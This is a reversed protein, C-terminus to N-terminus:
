LLNRYDYRPAVSYDIVLCPTGDSALQSSFSLDIYGSDVNWGLEDGLKVSDLGIEYYFDNLSVYMDDLMQRNLECEAKKIKEIDSKFYRGSIADYCLTNGKETIIVERTVVPNKEVKDKAVADKVAENKKEGFMEIVKGRYDKLASESLTYATALAANRRANVSSAGILCAISLTGTIAAPIYCAWTTKVMDMAELKEAGIEEKREEILILAKPTARVAMVTTTIMGAIGIGTLIEPSHKKIATKLSLLSKAIEKKM